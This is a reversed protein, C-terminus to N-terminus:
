PRRQFFRVCSHERASAIEVPNPEAVTLSLTLDVSTYGPASATSTIECVDGVEASSGAAVRGNNNVTCVGSQTSGNRSGAAAFSWTVAVSNDDKTPIDVLELNGGVTLTSGGDSPPSTFTLPEKLLNVSIETTVNNYGTLRATLVITCATTGPVVTVNAARVEGSSATVLTCDSEGGKLSYSITATVPTTTPTSPTLTDGGVALNGTFVVLTM